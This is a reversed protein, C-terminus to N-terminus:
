RQRVYSKTLFNFSSYRRDMLSDQKDHQSPLVLFGMVKNKYIKIEPVVMEFTESSKNKRKLLFDGLNKFSASIKMKKSISKDEEKAVLPRSM